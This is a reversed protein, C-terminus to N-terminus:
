VTFHFYHKGASRTCYNNSFASHIRILPISAFNPGGGLFLHIRGGGGGGQHM